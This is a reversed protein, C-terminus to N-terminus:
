IRENNDSSRDVNYCHGSVYVDIPGQPYINTMPPNLTCSAIVWM